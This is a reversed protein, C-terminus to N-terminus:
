SSAPQRKDLYDLVGSSMWVEYESDLKSTIQDQPKVKPIQRHPSLSIAIQDAADSGRRPPWGYNDEMYASLRTLCPTLSAIADVKCWYLGWFCKTLCEM